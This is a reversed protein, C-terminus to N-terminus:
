VMTTLKTLETLLETQKGCLMIMLVELRKDPHTKELINDIRNQYEQLHPHSELFDKLEKSAQEKSKMSKAEQYYELKMSPAGTEIDRVHIHAIAAGAQHAELASNAIAEPTIPLNETSRDGFAGTVAVTIIPSEHAM